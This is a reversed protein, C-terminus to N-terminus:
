GISEGIGEPAKLGAECRQLWTADIVSVEGDQDVDALKKATDSLKTMKVDYRQIMTADTIDVAGDLNADGLLHDGQYYFETLLASVLDLDYLKSYDKREYTNSGRTETKTGVLAYDVPAGSEVDVGSDSIITISCSLSFYFYEPTLPLTLTCAGGGSPEGLVCIGADKCLVPMLNGCSYSGESTLVAYNFDYAVDKDRDDFVGDLNLDLKDSEMYTNGTLTNRMLTYNENTHNKNNTLIAMMYKVVATSGGSNTSLDIVFNKVGHEEAYDLSWKFMAVVDDKFSNFSFLATDHYQYLVAAGDNWNKILEYNQVAPNRDLPPVDRTMSKLMIGLLAMKAKTEDQTEPNAMLKSYYQYLASDSYKGGEVTFDIFFNTHGGDYMLDSLLVLGVVYDGKDSSQLLRKIQKTDDSYTNLTKDFGNEKISEAIAAKSPYGYCHDMLFCMERYTYDTMAETRDLSEFLASRDYYSGGTAFDTSHTFYLNGNLYEASNYTSNYIDNLTPLPIYVRGDYEIVDIGYAALDLTVPRVEGTQEWPLDVAYYSDLMSGVQNTDNNVLKEFNEYYITDADPDIVMTGNANSVSYTGDDNKTEAAEITYLHDMYDEPDVYAVEPLDSTFLCDLEIQKDMGYLYTPVTKQTVAGAANVSLGAFASLMLTLALILCILRKKM